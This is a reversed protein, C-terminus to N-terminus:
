TTPAASSSVNTRCSRSPSTSATTAPCRRTRDGSCTSGTSRRSSPVRWGSRTMVHQGSTSTRSSRYLLPFLSAPKPSPRGTSGMQRKLVDLKTHPNILWADGLRAARRVAPDNNAAVWIPPHPQQITRTPWSVERLTTHEGQYSVLPETWLRRMIELGEEFIRVRRSRDIGFADYEIDRYGLGVGLIFRGHTIADLTTVQECVDVPNLLATLLIGVGLRMDGSEAAIRALFPLPHLQQYPNSFYHHNAFVAAFGADRAARVQELHRDVHDAMSGQPHQAAIFLGFDM